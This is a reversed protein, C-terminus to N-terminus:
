HGSRSHFAKQDRPSSIEEARQSEKKTRCPDDINYRTNKTGESKRTTRYNDKRVQRSMILEIFHVHGQVNM